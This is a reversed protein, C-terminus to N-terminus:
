SDISAAFGDQLREGRLRIQAKTPSSPFPDYGAQDGTTPYYFTYGDIEYSATEYQNYDEQCLWYRNRFQLIQEKGTAALKYCLFLAVAAACLRRLTMKGNPRKKEEKKLLHEAAMGVPVFAFLYVFVCGYRILPANLFWFVTSCLLTMLVSMRLLRGERHEECNEKIQRGIGERVCEERHQEKQKEKQKERHEGIHGEEYARKGKEQLRGRNRLCGVGEAACWTLTCPVMLLDLLLFIKDLTAQGRFWDKVWKRLPLDYLSVDTYGRGWVKIERADSQATGLPVKWDVSFLDIATMPYFLWGTLIVNRILFPLSIVVAACVFVLIPRWAKRRLYVGLPFLALLLLGAASLKVTITYVALMALLGYPFPDREGEEALSLFRIVLYFACLVMFYDSAPSVMEDFITCLYYIGALRAFDSATPKKGRFIRLVKSCEGATLFALFGACVHYSQGGMFAFSYLASLAFSASNYGLRTHLNALGSVAGYTEIWRISQAHYLDSDYHIYGRSTGYAYLLLLVIWACFTVTKQRRERTVAGFRFNVCERDEAQKEIYEEKNKKPDQKETRSNRGRFSMKLQCACVSQCVAQKEEWRIYIAAAASLLALGVTAGLGVGTLLSWIQAYVTTVVIGAMACAIADPRQRRGAGALRQLLMIGGRGTLFTTVMMWIFIILVSLM